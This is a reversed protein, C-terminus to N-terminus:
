LYLIYSLSRTVINFGRRGYYRELGEISDLYIDEIGQEIFERLMHYLLISGIRKGWFRRKVALTYVYGIRDGFLNNYIEGDCYGVPEGNIYAIYLILKHERYFRRADEVKWTIFWPYISFADNYIEVVKDVDSIDGKEVSVSSTAMYEDIRRKLSGLKSPDFKMLTATYDIIVPSVRKMLFNHLFRYEYGARIRVVNNTGEVLVKNRLWKFIEDLLNEKISYPLLPDVVLQSRLMDSSIWAYLYGVVKDDLIFLYLDSPKFWSAEFWTRRYKEVSVPNGVDPYEVRNFRNILEVLSDDYEGGSYGYILRFM